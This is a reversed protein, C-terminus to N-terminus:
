GAQQAKDKNVKQEISNVLWDNVFVRVIYVIIQKLM